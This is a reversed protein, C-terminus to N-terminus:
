PQTNLEHGMNEHKQIKPDCTIINRNQHLMFDFRVFHMLYVVFLLGGSIHHCITKWSLWVTYVHTNGCASLESFTDAVVDVGAVIAGVDRARTLDVDDRWCGTTAWWKTRGGGALTGLERRDVDDRLEVGGVGAATSARMGAQGVPQARKSILGRSSVVWSVVDVDSRCVPASWTGSASALVSTSTAGNPWSSGSLTATGSPGIGESLNESENRAPLSTVSSLSCGPASDTAAEDDNSSVDGALSLSLKLKGDGSAGGGGRGASITVM